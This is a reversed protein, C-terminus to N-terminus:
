KRKIGERQLRHWAEEVMAQDPAETIVPINHRALLDIFDYYELGLSTAAERISLAGAQWLALIAGERARAELEEDKLPTEAPLPIKLDLTRSTTM